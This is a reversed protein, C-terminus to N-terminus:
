IDIGYEMVLSPIPTDYIPTRRRRRRRRRCLLLLLLLNSCFTFLSFLYTRCRTIM